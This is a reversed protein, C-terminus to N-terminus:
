GMEIASLLIGWNQQAFKGWKRNPAFRCYYNREQSQLTYKELFNFQRM